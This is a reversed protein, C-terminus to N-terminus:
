ALAEAARGIETALAGEGRAAEEALLALLKARVASPTEVLAAHKHVLSKLAREEALRAACEQCSAVHAEAERM